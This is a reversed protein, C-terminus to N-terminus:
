FGREAFAARLRERGGGYIIDGHGMVINDFDESLLRRLSDAFAPRDKVGSLWFRSVGFRQYTGFLGLILRPGFGKASLLNFCLDAVILTRSARHVFVAEQIKPMGALRIMSLEDAYPWDSDRTELGWTRAQPYHARAKEMGATHFGNNAVLDTVPGIKAYVEDTLRSGPSILVRADRLRVLTTRVPLSMLPMKISTDFFSLGDLNMKQVRARRNRATM